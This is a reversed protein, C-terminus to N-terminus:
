LFLHVIKSVSHSVKLNSVTDMDLYSDSKVVVTYSYTGPPPATFKLQISEETELNTVLVPPSVLRKLKKDAM